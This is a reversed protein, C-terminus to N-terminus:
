KKKVLSKQPFRLTQMNQVSKKRFCQFLSCHVSLLAQLEESSNNVSFANLLVLVIEACNTIGVCSVHPGWM